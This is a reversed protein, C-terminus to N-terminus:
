SGAHSVEANETVEGQPAERLARVREWDVLVTQHHSPYVCHDPLVTAHDEATQEDWAGFGCDACRFTIAPITPIHVHECSWCWVPDALYKM